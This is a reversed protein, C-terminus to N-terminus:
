REDSPRRDIVRARAFGFPRSLARQSRCEKEKREEHRFPLPKAKRLRMHQYNAAIAAPEVTENVTTPTSTGIRKVFAVKSKRIQAAGGEAGEEAAGNIQHHYPQSPHHHNM